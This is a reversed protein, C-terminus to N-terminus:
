AATTAARIRAALSRAREDYATPAEMEAVGDMIPGSTRARTFAARAADTRGLRLLIMGRNFHLLARTSPPVQDRGGALEFRGSWDLIQDAVPGFEHGGVKEAHDALVNICEALLAAALDPSAAFAQAERVARPLDVRRVIDLFLGDDDPDGPSQRRAAEIEALAPEPKGMLLLTQARLSSFDQPPTESKADESALLDYITLLQFIRREKEVSRGPERLLKQLETEVRSVDLSDEDDLHVLTEWDPVGVLGYKEDVQLRAGVVVESDSLWAWDGPRLQAKAIHEQSANFTLRLHGAETAANYDAFVTRM